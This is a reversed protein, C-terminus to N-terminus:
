LASLGSHAVSLTAERSPQLMWVAVGDRGADPRM